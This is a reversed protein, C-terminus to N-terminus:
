HRSARDNQAQVLSALELKVARLEALLEDYRRDERALDHRRVRDAELAREAEVAAEAEDRAKREAEEAHDRDDQMGDVIIGIFLNLVAFATIVIYPVFFLMANPFVKLTPQVIGGAWDELTMLQFLTFLSATLTGFLARVAEMDEETVGDPLTEFQAQGFMTTTIVASVYFILALVAVVGSMGPVAAFFGDIVRRMKPVMSFLRFLRFIRFVRLASLGSVSPLYSVTVVFLDFWGWASRFFDWRYTYIRMAIEVTFVFLILGDIGKALWGYNEMFSPFTELGLVVANILILGIVFQEFRPDATIRKIERGLAKRRGWWYARSGPGLWCEAREAGALAEVASRMWSAM